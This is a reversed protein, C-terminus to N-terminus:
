ETFNVSPPASIPPGDGHKLVQPTGTIAGEIIDAFSERASSAQWVREAVDAM